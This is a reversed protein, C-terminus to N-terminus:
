KKVTKAHYFVIWYSYNHIIHAIKINNSISWACIIKACESGGFFEKSQLKTNMKEGSNRINRQKVM